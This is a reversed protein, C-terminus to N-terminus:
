VTVIGALPETANGMPVAMVNMAPGAELAVLMAMVDSVRYRAPVPEVPVLVSDALAMAVATLTVLVTHYM